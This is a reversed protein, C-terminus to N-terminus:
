DRILKVGCYPCYFIQSSLENHEYNDRLTWANDSFEVVEVDKTVADRQSCHHYSYDGM